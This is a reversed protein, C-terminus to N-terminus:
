VYTYYRSHHNSEFIWLSLSRKITQKHIDCYFIYSNEGTYTSVCQTAYNTAICSNIPKPLLLTYLLIYYYMTYIYYYYFHIGCAIVLLLRTEKKGKLQVCWAGVISTQQIPTTYLIPRVFQFANNPECLSEDQRSWIRIYLLLLRPFAGETPITFFAM